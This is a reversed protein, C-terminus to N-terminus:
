SATDRAAIRAERTRELILELTVVARDKRPNNSAVTWHQFRRNSLGGLPLAVNSRDFSDQGAARLAPRIEEHQRDLLLVAVAFRRDDVRQLRCRLTRELVANLLLLFHFRDALKGAADRVIKVVHEGGDHHRGVEEEIRVLRGVWGE